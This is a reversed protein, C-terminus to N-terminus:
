SELALVRVISHPAAAPLVACSSDRSGGFKLSLEHCAESHRMEAETTQRTAPVSYCQGCNLLRRAAGDVVGDDRAGSSSSRSQGDGSMGSLRTLFELFPMAVRGSPFMSM